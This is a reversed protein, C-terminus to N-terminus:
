QMAAVVQRKRDRKVGLEGVLLGLLSAVFFLPFRWPAGAAWADGQSAAVLPVALGVISPGPCIGLMGWGVGFVLSGGILSPDCRRAVRGEKDAGFECTTPYAYEDLLLPQPWRRALQHAALSVTAGAGMVFALSPDWQGAMNLFGRVKNQELMGALVLGIGSTLGVSLPVLESLLWALSFARQAEAGVAPTNGGRAARAAAVLALTVVMPAFAGLVLAAPHSPLKPPWAIWTVASCDVGGVVRITVTATVLGSAMFTCVSIFSRPSLRGLGCIGHGSTCGNGVQRSMPGAGTLPLGLNSRLHQLEIGENAYVSAGLGIALGALIYIGENVDVTRAPFQTSPIAGSLVGGVVLGVLVSVRWLAPLGAKVLPAASQVLIGSFGLVRGYCLLMTAASFGILLGGLASEIPTFTLACEAASAM